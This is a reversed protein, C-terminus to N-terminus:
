RMPDIKVSQTKIELLADFMDDCDHCNKYLNLDANMILNLYAYTTTDCTNRCPSEPLMHRRRIYRYPLEELLNKVTKGNCDRVLFCGPSMQKCAFFVYQLLFSAGDLPEYKSFFLNHIKVWFHAISMGTCSKLTLVEDETLQAYGDPIVTEINLKRDFRYPAEKEIVDEALPVANKYREFISQYSYQSYYWRILYSHSPSMSKTDISPYKFNIYQVLLRLRVRVDENSTALQAFDDYKFLYNCWKCCRMVIEDPYQAHCFINTPTLFELYALKEDDNPLPKHWSAKEENWSYTDPPDPFFSVGQNANMAKNIAFAIAGVGLLTGAITGVILKNKKNKKLKAQAKDDQKLKEFDKIEEDAESNVSQEAVIGDHYADSIMSTEAEPESDIAKEIVVGTNNIAPIAPSEVCFLTNMLFFVLYVVIM